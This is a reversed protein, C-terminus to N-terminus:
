AAFISYIMREKTGKKREIKNEECKRLGIYSFLAQHSSPLNCQCKMNSLPKTTLEYVVSSLSWSVDVVM